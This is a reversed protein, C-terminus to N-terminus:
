QLVAINELLTYHIRMTAGDPAYAYNLIKESEIGEDEALEAGVQYRAKELMYAYVEAEESSPADVSIDVITWTYAFIRGYGGVYIAEDNIYVCDDILLDGAKVYDNVRLACSGKEVYIKAIVGNKKAYFKGSPTGIDPKTERLYYTLSLISGSITFDISEISPLAALLTGKVQEMQEATPKRGMARMDNEELMAQITATMVPSSGYIRVDYVLTNFYCFGVIGVIVSILTVKKKWLSRIHFFVGRKQLLKAQPFASLLRQNQALSVRLRYTFEATKEIEEVRIKKERLCRFLYESSYAVIEYDLTTDHLM